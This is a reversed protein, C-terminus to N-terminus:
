RRRPMSMYRRYEKAYIDNIRRYVMGICALDGNCRNTEISVIGTKSSENPTNNNNQKKIELPPKKFSDYLSHPNINKMISTGNNNLVEKRNVDNHNIDERKTTLDKNEAVVYKEISAV